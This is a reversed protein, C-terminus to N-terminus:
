VFGNTIIQHGKESKRKEEEKTAANRNNRVWLTPRPIEPQSVSPFQYGLPPRRLTKQFVPFTVDVRVDLPAAHSTSVNPMFTMINLMFTSLNPVDSELEPLM